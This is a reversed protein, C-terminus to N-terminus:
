AGLAVREHAALTPARTAERFDLVVRGTITGQKLGDFVANIDGLARTERAVEIAGRAAFDLAERLDARTGVISG